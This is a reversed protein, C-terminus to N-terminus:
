KGNGSLIVQVGREKLEAVLEHPARANTVLYEVRDIPAITRLAVRGIKTFDLAAIVTRAQSLMQSCLAAEEDYYTSVGNEADIGDASLVLYDAYYARLQESATDGYVYQYEANVSGGLLVVRLNAHKAAELALVISNTIITVGKKDVLQEMVALTTTGANMIVSCNDHIMAAITEAIQRKEERNSGSRQALSMNYYSTYSSVAGGHVRSLAGQGELDALDSRISVESVGFRAALEAVRVKGSHHLLELIASRREQLTLDM